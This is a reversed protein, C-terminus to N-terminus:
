GKVRPLNDRVLREVVAVMPESRMAAEARVMADVDRAWRTAWAVKNAAGHRVGAGIKKKIRGPWKRGTRYAAIKQGHTKQKEM